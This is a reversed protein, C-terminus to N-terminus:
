GTVVATEDFVKSHYGFQQVAEGFLPVGKQPCILTFTGKLLFAM